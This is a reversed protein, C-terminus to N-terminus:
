RGASDVTWTLQGDLRHEVLCGRERELQLLGVQMSKIRDFWHQCIDIYRTKFVLRGKVKDLNVVLGELVSHDFRLNAAVQLAIRGSCVGGSKHFSVAIRWRM